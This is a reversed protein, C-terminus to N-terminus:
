SGIAGARARPTEPGGAARRLERLLYGHGRHLGDFVGVVVLLPGHEPRLASLGHLAAPPGSVGRARAPAIPDREAVRRPATARSWSRTPCWAGVPAGPSRPWRGM